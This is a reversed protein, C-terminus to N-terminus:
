ATTTHPIVRSHSAGAVKEQVGAILRPRLPLKDDGTKDSRDSSTCGSGGGATAGNADFKVIPGM